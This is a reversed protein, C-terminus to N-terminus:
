MGQWPVFFDGKWPTNKKGTCQQFATFKVSATNCVLMLHCYRIFKLKSKLLNQLNQNSSTQVVKRYHHSLWFNTAWIQIAKKRLVLLKKLVYCIIIGVM